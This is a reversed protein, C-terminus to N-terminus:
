LSKVSVLASAGINGAADYAKSQLSYTKKPANPVTWACTYPATTDTCKLTGNVYFKVSSVGVNDSASATITTVAGKPVTTGTLPSTIATTPATTDVTVVNV